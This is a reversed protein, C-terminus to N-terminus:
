QIYGSIIKMFIPSIFTEISVAILILLALVVYSTTYILFQKYFNIQKSKNLKNKILMLAFSLSITSATIFIPIIILNQPLVGLLFLLIGKFKFQEILLGVTFGIVFGKFCIIFIIGPIAVVLIGFIWSLSLLQLNNILSQLFIDVNRIEENHFLQFFGKLYAVLEQKHSSSIVKVTFGGVSIGILLCLIILFYIIFNSKIHKKFSDMISIPMFLSGKKLLSM